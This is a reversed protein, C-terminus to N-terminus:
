SRRKAHCFTRLEFQDFEVLKLVSTVALWINDFFTKTKIFLTFLALLFGVLGFIVLYPAFSILEMNNM